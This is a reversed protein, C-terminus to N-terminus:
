EGLKDFGDRTNLSLNLVVKIVNCTSEIDEKYILNNIVLNEAINRAKTENYKLRQKIEGQTM